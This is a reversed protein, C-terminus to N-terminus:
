SVLIMTLLQSTNKFTGELTVVFGHWLLLQTWFGGPFRGGVSICSKGRFKFFKSGLIPQVYININQVISQELWLSVALLGVLLFDAGIYFLAYTPSSLPFTYYAPSPYTSHCVPLFTSLSAPLNNWILILHDLFILWPVRSFPTHLYFHSKWLTGPMPFPLFLRPPHLGDNGLSLQTVVAWLALSVDWLSNNLWASYTPAHPHLHLVILSHLATTSLSSFLYASSAPTM